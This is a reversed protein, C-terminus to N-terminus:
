PESPKVSMGLVPCRCDLDELGMGRMKLDLLDTWCLFKGSVRSVCISLYSAGSNTLQSSEM